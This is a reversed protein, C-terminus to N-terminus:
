GLSDNEESKVIHLEGDVIANMLGTYAMTSGQRKRKVIGTAMKALM